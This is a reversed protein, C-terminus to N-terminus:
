EGQKNIELLAREIDIRTILGRTEMLKDLLAAFYPIPGLDALFEAAFPTCRARVSALKNLDDAMPAGLYLPCRKPM